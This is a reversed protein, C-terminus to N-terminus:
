CPIRAAVDVQRGGVVAVRLRAALADRLDAQRERGVLIDGRRDLGELVRGLGEVRPLAAGRVLLDGLGGLGQLEYFGRCVQNHPREDRHARADAEGRGGRIRAKGLVQRMHAVPLRSLVDREGGAVIHVDLARHALGPTVKRNGRRVVECDLRREGGDILTAGRM